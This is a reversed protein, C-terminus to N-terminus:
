VPSNAKLWSRLPEDIGIDRVRSPHLPRNECAISVLDNLRSARREEPVKEQLNYPYSYSPPLMRVGRGERVGAILARFVAQHLFIRHLPDACAAV